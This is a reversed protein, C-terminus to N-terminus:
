QSSWLKTYILLLTDTNAKLAYTVNINTTYVNQVVFDLTQSEETVTCGIAKVANVDDSATVGLVRVFRPAYDIWKDLSLEITTSEFHHCDSTM